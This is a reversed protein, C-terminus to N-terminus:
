SEESSLIREFVLKEGRRMRESVAQDSIDLQDAIESLTTKRPIEFYGQELATTLAERQTPTLGFTPTDYSGERFVAELALSTSEQSSYAESFNRFLSETPFILHVQWADGTWFGDEFAGGYKGLLPFISQERAIDSLSVQYLFRDGEDVLRDYSTVTEDAELKLELDATDISRIWYRLCFEGSEDVCSGALRIEIDPTQRVVADLIPTSM